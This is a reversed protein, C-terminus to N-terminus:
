SYFKLILGYIMKKQRIEHEDKIGDIEPNHQTSILITKNFSSCGKYEYTIQKKLRAM